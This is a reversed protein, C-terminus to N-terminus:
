HQFAFSVCFTANGRVKVSPSAYLIRADPSLDLIVIYSKLADQAATEDDDDDDEIFDEAMSSTLDASPCSTSEGPSKQREEM